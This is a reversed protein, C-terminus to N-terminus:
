VTTTFLSPCLRRSLITSGFAAKSMDRDPTPEANATVTSTAGKDLEHYKLLNSLHDVAVVLPSNILNLHSSDSSFEIM